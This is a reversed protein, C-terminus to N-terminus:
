FGAAIGDRRVEAVGQFGDSNRCKIVAHIGGLYFAFPERKNIRYGREKFSKIIEDPFREAELSIKGGLSCHIRPALMAESISMGEDIIHILFQVMATISRESGPSGLAMWVNNKYFILTPAVTAWPVANPRLYFPHSPENYEFDLMYNNYLFGMGDAAAKSGYVREISQTLSVAMGNKDMVSLHTTEGTLEDETERIPLNPDISKAIKKICRHAFKSSLMDKETVQPYFNPDYPRDSRELLAKRFIEALLHARKVEDKKLRKPPIANVMALSFLLSRGSGPPPMTYVAFNRFKRHLPQREIPWPILALDDNRLLGGNERMDADIRRAITGTYFDQVGREAICALTKALDLQKFVEGAPYPEGNKLFYKKGSKSEVSNFKEKERIQLRHQLETIKYGETAIIIAPEVIKRWPLAGYKKQVYGLTALTSPLTTARYGSARDQKYVAKVHALSPARSSGDIAVIKKGTWLLMMTQGGIGSAQPECVGLALAAACAADVANGGIRLIEVGAQTADPFATAVMGNKAVAGKAEEIPQFKSEIDKINM